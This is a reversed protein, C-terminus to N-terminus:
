SPSAFRLDCAIVNALIKSHCSKATWSQNRSKSSTEINTIKESYVVLCLNLGRPRGRPCMKFAKAKKKKFVVPFSIKPGKKLFCKRRTDKTKAKAELM